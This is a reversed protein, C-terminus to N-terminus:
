QSTNTEDIAGLVGYQLNGRGDRSCEGDRRGGGSQGQKCGGDVRRHQTSNACSLDSILLAILARATTLQTSTDLSSATEIMVLISRDDWSNSTNGKDVIENLTTRHNDTLRKLEGIKNAMQQMVSKAVANGKKDKARKHTHTHAHTHIHTYTHTHTHIHTCGQLLPLIICINTPSIHTSEM